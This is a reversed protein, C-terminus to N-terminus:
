VNALTHFSLGSSALILGLVFCWRWSVRARLVRTLNVDRDLFVRVEVNEEALAIQFDVLGDFQM